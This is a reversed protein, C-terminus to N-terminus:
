KVEFGKSASSGSATSSSYSLTVNWTGKSPFDSAKATIMPCNVNNSGKVGTSSRTFSSSGQSFTATCTGGDEFVGGVYSGVEVQEKYQEAYTIVPMVQKLGSTAQSNTKNSDEIIRQKNDEVRQKDAETPPDLNITETQNTTTSPQSSNNSKRTILYIAGAGLVLVICIVIILLKKNSKKHKIM